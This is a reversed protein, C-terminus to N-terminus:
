SELINTITFMKQYPVIEKSISVFFSNSNLNLGLEQEQWRYIDNVKFLINKRTNLYNKILITKNEASIM